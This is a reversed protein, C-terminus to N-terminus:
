MVFVFIEDKTIGTVFSKNELVHFSFIKRQVKRWITEQHRYWISHVHIFSEKGKKTHKNAGKEHWMIVM